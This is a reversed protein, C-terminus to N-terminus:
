KTYDQLKALLEDAEEATKVRLLISVVKTHEPMPLSMIMVNNKGMRQCPLGNGVMLNILVQGINNDARVVLQAKESDKVPKLYLMGVGRDAYDAGKMVFVVKCRKSYVADEEVVQKFEVKPPQDEEEQDDANGAPEAAAAPPKINVFSFLTAGPTFSFSTSPKADGGAAGASSSFGAFLSSSGGENICGQDEFTLELICCWM